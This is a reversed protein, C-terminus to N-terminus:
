RSDRDRSRNVDRVRNDVPNAPVVTVGSQAQARAAADLTTPVPAGANQMIKDLPLYLLHLSNSQSVYWVPTLYKLVDPAFSHSAQIM